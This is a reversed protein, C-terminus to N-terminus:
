FPCDKDDISTDPTIMEQNVDLCFSDKDSFKNNGYQENEVISWFTTRGVCANLVANFASSDFDMEPLEDLNVGCAQVLGATKFFAKETLPTHQCLAKGKYEEPDLIKSFWRIQPTGTSAKTRDWGTVEVKYTATPFVEYDSGSVAESWNVM